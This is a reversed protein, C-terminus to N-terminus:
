NKPIILVMGVELADPTPLQERNVEWIEKWRLHEGYFFYAISWLSDGRRVTYHVYAESIVIEETIEEIYHPCLIDIEEIIETKEIIPDPCKQPHCGSIVVGVIMIILMMGISRLWKM